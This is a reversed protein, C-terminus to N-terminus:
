SFYGHLFWRQRGAEQYTWDQYVWCHAGNLHRAIYYDRTIRSTRQWWGTEIREARGLLTIQRLNLPKPARLLWLPRNLVYESQSAPHHHTIKNIPGKRRQKFRPSVKRWAMEPQHRNHRVVGCFSEQGLRAALQDLLEDPQAGSAPQFQQFQQFLAHNRSKWTELQAMDLTVTIVEAPLALRELRLRSVELLIKKERQPEAFHVSMSISKQNQAHTQTQNLATFTWLLNHTGLQRSILWDFAEMVLRQMPFLLGEKHRVAELLHLTNKFREAPSIYVRPQSKQGCLENLYNLLRTGFRRGLEARPLGLLQGIRYVGMNSLRELTEEPLESYRLDLSQLAKLSTHQIEQQSPFPPLDLFYGARAFLLAAAPTHGLAIVCRHSLGSFLQKMSHKLRYIGGFLKLSGKLELLLSDPAEISVNPTYRYAAEALFTLRRREGDPSRSCHLLRHDISHATALSSGPQIGVQIATENCALVRSKEVLVVPRNGKDDDPQGRLCVELGLFPYHVCFWLM